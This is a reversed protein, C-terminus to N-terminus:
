ERNIEEQRQKEIKAKIKDSLLNIFIERSNNEKEKLEELLKQQYAQFEEWTFNKEKSRNWLRIDEESLEGLDIGKWRLADPSKSEEETEKIEALEEKTQELIEREKKDIKLKEISEGM